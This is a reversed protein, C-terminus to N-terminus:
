GDPQNKAITDKLADAIEKQTFPKHIIRRIGAAQISAADIDADYGTCLIVPLDPRLVRAARVLAPGSMEPMRLDTVLVDFESPREQFRTLATEANTFGSVRYGLRELMKQFVTINQPEDDVFLVHKGGTPTEVDPLTEVTQAPPTERSQPFYISFVAGIGRDSEVTIFGGYQNMIGNVVSLGLGTGEDVPKTTFYPDFIKELVDPDIGTGTDKVVLRVYAGPKAEPAPLSEGPSFRVPALTVSLTGGTEPMAQVANTCLNLMIQHLQAGNATIPGCDSIDTHLRIRDPITSQIQKVSDRILPAPWLPLKETDGKRGFTLIQLVTDRARRAATLIESLNRHVPSEPPLDEIAMEAFGIIPFLLNNFDHAIGGALTGIAQLKQGQLLQEQLRSKQRETKRQETVDETHMIILDPAVFGYTIILDRWLRSSKTFYRLERRFSQKEAACRKLDDVIERDDNYIQGATLGIFRKAGGGTITEAARNIRILRFDGNELQWIFTPVPIGSLLDNMRKESERLAELTAKRETIDRLVSLHLGPVFNAVACFEATVTNGDKRRLPIEGELRKHTLFRAWATEFDNETTAVVIDKASMNRLEAPSYGFLEGAAPNADIYRANDDAILIADLANDFLAQLRNRSDLLDAEAQKRESIERSISMVVSKGPLDIKHARIEFPIERGDRTLGSAEFQAYGMEAIQRGIRTFEEPDRIITTDAPGMRLLEEESYGLTECTAENVELYRGPRGNEDIEHLIINDPASNFLVRLYAESEFRATQHVKKEAINRGFTAVAPRNEFIIFISAAEMWIEGGTLDILRQEHFETRMRQETIASLRTEVFPRDSEHVLTLVERGILADTDEAKVLRVAAENAFVIRGERHIVVPDPLFSLFM